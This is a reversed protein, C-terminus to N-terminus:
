CPIDEEIQRKVIKRTSSPGSPHLSGVTICVAQLIQRSTAHLCRFPLASFALTGQRGKCYQVRGFPRVPRRVSVRVSVKSAGLVAVRLDEARDLEMEITKRGVNETWRM